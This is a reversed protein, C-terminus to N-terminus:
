EIAKRRLNDPDGTSTHIKKKETWEASLKKWFHFIKPSKLTMFLTCM